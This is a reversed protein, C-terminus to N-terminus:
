ISKLRFDALQVFVFDKATQRFSIAWEGDPSLLSDTLENIMADKFKQVRLWSLFDDFAATNIYVGKELQKLGIKLKRKIRLNWGAMKRLLASAHTMCADYWVAGSKSGADQRMMRFRIMQFVKGGKEVWKQHYFTSGCSELKIAIAIAVFSIAGTGLELGSLLMELYRKMGEYFKPIQNVSMQQINALVTSCRKAIQNLGQYFDNAQTPTGQQLDQAKYYDTFYM